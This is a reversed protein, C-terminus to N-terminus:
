LRPFPPPWELFRCAILPPAARLYRATAMSLDGGIVQQGPDVADGVGHHAPGARDALDRDDPRTGPRLERALAHESVENRDRALPRSTELGDRPGV